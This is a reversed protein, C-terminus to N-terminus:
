DGQPKTYKKDLVFEKRKEGTGPRELHHAVSSKGLLSDMVSKGSKAEDSSAAKAATKSPGDELGMTGLVDDDDFSIDTQKKKAFNGRRGGSPESNM